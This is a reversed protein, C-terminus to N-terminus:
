WTLLKGIKIGKSNVWTDKKSTVTNIAKPIMILGVWASIEKSASDKLNGMMIEAKEQSDEFVNMTLAHVM